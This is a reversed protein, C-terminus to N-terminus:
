AQGGEGVAINADEIFASLLPVVLREEKRAKRQLPNEIGGRFGDLSCGRCGIRPNAEATVTPAASFVHLVRNSDDVGIDNSGIPDNRSARHQQRLSSDGLDRRVNDCGDVADIRDVSSTRKQRGAEDVQMHVAPGATIEHISRRGGKQFDGPNVGSVPGGGHQRGGESRILFIDETCDAGVLLRVPAVRLPRREFASIREDGMEVRAHVPHGAAVAIVIGTCDFTGIEDILHFHLDNGVPNM